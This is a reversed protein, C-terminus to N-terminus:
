RQHFSRLVLTPQVKGRTCGLDDDEDSANAEVLLKRLETIFKRRDVKPWDDYGRISKVLTVVETFTWRAIEDAKKQLQEENWRIEDFFSKMISFFLHTRGKEGAFIREFSDTYIRAEDLIEKTSKTTSALDKTKEELEGIFDAFRFFVEDYDRQQRYLEEITM